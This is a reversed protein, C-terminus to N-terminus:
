NIPTCTGYLENCFNGAYFLEDETLEERGFEHPQNILITQQDFQSAMLILFKQMTDHSIRFSISTASCYQRAEAVVEVEQSNPPIVVGLPFFFEGMGMRLDLANVHQIPLNSADAIKVSLTM